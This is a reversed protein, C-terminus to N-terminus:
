QRVSDVLKFGPHYHWFHRDQLPKFTNESAGWRSLIARTAEETSLAIPGSYALGATRHNSAHNWIILYRLTFRHSAAGPPTHCFTEEEEL